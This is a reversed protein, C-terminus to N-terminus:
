KIFAYTDSDVTGAETGPFYDQGADLILCRAGDEIAYKKGTATKGNPVSFTAKYEASGFRNLSSNSLYVFSTASGECLYDAYSTGLNTAYLDFITGLEGHFINMIKDEFKAYKFSMKREDSVSPLICCHGGLGFLLRMYVRAGPSLGSLDSMDFACARFYIESGVPLSCLGPFSRIFTDSYIPKMNLDLGVLYYPGGLARIGTIGSMKIKVQGIADPYPYPFLWVSGSTRSFAGLTLNENYTGAAININAQFSTMNYNGTVYDVCAQVTKFPKNLTGPNLELNDTAAAHNQDVYFNTNGALWIPVRISKLLAEFKDTPMKSFDVYIQGNSDVALGGGSQIIQNVLTLRNATPMQSFDLYVKGDTAGVALGGGVRIFDQPKTYIEGKNNFALGGDKQLKVIADGNEDIGLGMMQNIIDAVNVIIGGEGPPTGEDYLLGGGPKITKDTLCNQLIKQALLASDSAAKASHAASDACDCAIKVCSDDHHPHHPHHPGCPPPLTKHCAM